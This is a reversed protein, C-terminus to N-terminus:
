LYSLWWDKRRSKLDAMWRCLPYMLAIVLVWVAYVSWLGVGYGKPYYLLFTMMQSAPYGQLMGLLVSLAHILFFHGIYFAFPVRGFMVLTTKVFGTIRDSLACTIAAPGLTMTLFAFSPPYKTTNLFDVITAIKAGPHLQWTNPDGYVDLARMLLFLFTVLIGSRMLIANRKEEPMEFIGATGFGAMMVGVWPLFPYVFILLFPGATVAMQSHLAVWPPRLDFLSSAPWIPDLLNHAAIL